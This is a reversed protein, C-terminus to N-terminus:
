SHGVPGLETLGCDSCAPQEGVPGLETLVVTVTGGCTGARDPSCDSHGLQGVTVTQQSHGWLSPLRAVILEYLPLRTSQVKIRRKTGTEDEKKRGKQKGNRVAEKRNRM